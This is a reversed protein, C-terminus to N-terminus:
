RGYFLLKGIQDDLNPDKLVVLIITMLVERPIEDMRGKQFHFYM